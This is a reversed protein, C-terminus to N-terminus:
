HSCFCVFQSSLGKHSSPGASIPLLVPFSVGGRHSTIPEKKNILYMKIYHKKLFTDKSKNSLVFLFLGLWPNTKRRIFLLVGGGRQSWIALDVAKLM